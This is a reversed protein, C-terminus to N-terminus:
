PGDTTEVPEVVRNTTEVPEVVRGTTEVPEVVRNTTEVPEVVRETPEVPEVVPDRPRSPSSWGLRSGAGYCTRPALWTPSYTALRASRMCCGSAKARTCM